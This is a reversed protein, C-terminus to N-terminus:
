MKTAQIQKLAPISNSVTLYHSFYYEAYNIRNIFKNEKDSLWIMKSDLTLNGAFLVKPVMGILLRPTIPYYICTFPDYLGKKFLGSNDFSDRMYLVPEDSTVYPTKTGNQFVMIIFNEYIVRKLESHDYSKTFSADKIANELLLEINSLALDINNIFNENNTSKRLERLEKVLGTKMEKSTKRSYNRGVDGRITQTVTIDIIRRKLEDDLVVQNNQLLVPCRKKIDEITPKLVQNEYISLRDEVDTIREDNIGHQIYYDRESAIDNVSIGQKIEGSKKILINSLNHNEDYTFYKLYLKPVKHNRQKEAM